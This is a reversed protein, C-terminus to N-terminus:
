ESVLDVKVDRENLGFGTNTPVVHVDKGFLCGRTAHDNNLILKLHGVM